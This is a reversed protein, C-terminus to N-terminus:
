ETYCSASIAEDMQRGTEDREGGPLLFDEHRVGMLHLGEHIITRSQLPASLSYFSPCIHIESGPIADVHALPERPDSCSAGEHPVEDLINAASIYSSPDYERSRGDGLDNHVRCEELKELADAVAADLQEQTSPTEDDDGGGGGPGGPGDPGGGNGPGPDGEGPRAGPPPGTDAGPDEGTVTFVGGEPIQACSDEDVAEGEQDCVVDGPGVGTPTAVVGLTTTSTVTLSYNGPGPDYPYVVVSHNGEGLTGSWSDDRTGWRNTCRSSGVRCDFDITLGTLAVDVQAGRALTFSYTRSTWINTESTDVLTTVQTRTGESGGTDPTDVSVTLTYNGSAGTRPYVVIKHEGADLTGSWADDATGIQNTCDSQGVRCDFDSTMGTLRVSVDFRASLRLAYTRSRSAHDGPGSDPPEPDSPPAPPSVPTGSVSLTWNGSTANYPYVTVTHTGADLTGSWSDDRTGGRNTCRSSNVRCDIDRNMGTLSVSVETRSELRFRYEKRGAGTETATFPVTFVGPDSPPPDSPPAASATVTTTFRVTTGVSGYVITGSSDRATYVIRYATDATVTPLTGSVSRTSADFTIGPPLGSVSYRYPPVGGTAAPLTTDMSGGSPLRSDPIAPLSLRPPPPPAAPAVVVATFTVSDTASRSDRVSYTVTYTTDVVVTPLTGRARRTSHSFSIGPPLGSVSYSYPRRGGTAAPFVTDVSGGSPLRFDPITPLSLPSPPPPPPAPPPVVTARFSVSASAGAGDRVSYTVTYTTETAVTPLTGSAIRTGPAFSIGPPQGSLGYTYPAAGGTAAPFVTNVVGASPLRFDPISPLSLREATLVPPVGAMLLIFLTLAYRLRKM